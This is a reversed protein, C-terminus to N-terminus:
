LDWPGWYTGTARLPILTLLISHGSPQIFSPSTSNCVMRSTSQHSCIAKSTSATSALPRRSAFRGCTTCTKHPPFLRYLFSIIDPWVQRKFFPIRWFVNHHSFSLVKDLVSLKGGTTNSDGNSRNLMLEDAWTNYHQCGTQVKSYFFIYYIM